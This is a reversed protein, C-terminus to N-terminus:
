QVMSAHELSWCQQINCTTDTQVGQQMKNPTTACLKFGTLSQALLEWYIEQETIALTYRLLTSDTQVARRVNDPNRVRM